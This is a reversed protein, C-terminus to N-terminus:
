HTISKLGIKQGLKSQAPFTTFRVIWMGTEHNFKRSSIYDGNMRGVRKAEDLSAFEREKGKTM